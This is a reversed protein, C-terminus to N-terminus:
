GKRSETYNTISAQQTQNQYRDIVDDKGIIHMTAHLNKKTPLKPFTPTSKQIQRFFQLYKSHVSTSSKWNQLSLSVVNVVLTNNVHCYITRCHLSMSGMRCPTKGNLTLLWSLTDSPSILQPGFKSSLVIKIELAV